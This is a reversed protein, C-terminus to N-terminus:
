APVFSHINYLRESMEVEANKLDYAMQLNLWYAASQGLARNLLLALEATVPRKGNVIHSVRMPSIGIAHAFEAQSIHLEELIKALYEGPHIAPLGNRFM